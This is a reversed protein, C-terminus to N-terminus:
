GFRGILSITVTGSKLGGANTVWGSGFATTPVEVADTQITIAAIHDTLAAGNVTVTLQNTLVVKAM